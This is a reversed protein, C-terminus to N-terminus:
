HRKRYGIEIMTRGNNSEHYGRAVYGYLHSKATMDLSAVPVIGAQVVAYRAQPFYNSIGANTTTDWNTIDTMDLNNDKKKLWVLSSFTKDNLQDGPALDLLQLGELAASEAMYFNEQYIRENRAIKNEMTATNIVSLGMITLVAMMVMVLLLASGNENGPCPISIKKITTQKLPIM